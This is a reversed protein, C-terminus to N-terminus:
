THLHVCALSAVCNSLTQAYICVYLVFLEDLPTHTQANKHVHMCAHVYMYIYIYVCIYISIYVFNVCICSAV